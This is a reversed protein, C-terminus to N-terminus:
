DYHWWSSGGHLLHRFVDSPIDEEEEPKAQFIYLKEKKNILRINVQSCGTELCDQYELVEQSDDDDADDLVEINGRGRKYVRVLTKQKEDRDVM